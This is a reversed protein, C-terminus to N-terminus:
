ERATRAAVRFSVRLEHPVKTPVSSGTASITGSLGGAEIREMHIVQSLYPSKASKLGVERRVPRSMAYLPRAISM